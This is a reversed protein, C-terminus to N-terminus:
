ECGSLLINIKLPLDLQELLVKLNSNAYFM